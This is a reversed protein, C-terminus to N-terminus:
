CALTAGNTVGTTISEAHMTVRVHNCVRSSPDGVKLGPGLSQVNLNPSSVKLVGGQVRVELMWRGVRLSKVEVKSNQSKVKLKM